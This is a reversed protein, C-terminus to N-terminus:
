IFVVYLVLMILVLVMIVILRNYSVNIGYQALTRIAAAPTTAAAVGGYNVITNGTSSSVGGIDNGTDALAFPSPAAYGILAMGYNCNQITNSYFKNNSNSGTAATPTLVSTAATSLANMMIIGVSGEVMPATGTVNNIRNLTITCNKITNNQCGDIVSAKYLAYGFEMTAPNAANPDTIDIGDITVYDSGILRFVGDQNASTPTATGAYATLLPNAGIGSKQFTITNALTGTATLVYGGVPATETFGAPIDIILPGNVGNTNIDTVAAALTLYDVGITKTGSIQARLNGSIAIFVLMVAAILRVSKQKKFKSYM